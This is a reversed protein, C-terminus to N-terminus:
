KSTVRRKEFFQSTRKNAWVWPVFKTGSNKLFAWDCIMENQGVRVEQALRYASSTPKNRHARGDFSVLRHERAEQPILAGDRLRLVASRDCLAIQMAALSAVGIAGELRSQLEPAGQL